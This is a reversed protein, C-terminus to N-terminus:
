YQDRYSEIRAVDKDFQADYHTGMDDAGFSGAVIDNLCDEFGEMTDPYNDAKVRSRAREQAMKELADYQIAFAHMKAVNKNRHELYIELEKGHLPETRYNRSRLIENISRVRKKSKVKNTNDHKKVWAEHRAAVMKIREKKDIEKQKQISSGWMALGILLLIFIGCFSMIKNSIVKKGVKVEVALNEARCHSCKVKKGEYHIPVMDFKKCQSCRM